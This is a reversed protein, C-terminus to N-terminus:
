EEGECGECGCPNEATCMCPDCTCNECTCHPNTCAM